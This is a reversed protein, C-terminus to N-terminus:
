VNLNVPFLTFKFNSTSSKQALHRLFKSVSCEIVDSIYKMKEEILVQTEIGGTVVRFVTRLIDASGSKVYTCPM